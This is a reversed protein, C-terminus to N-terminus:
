LFKRRVQRAFAADPATKASLLVLKHLTVVKALACSRGVASYIADKTLVEGEPVAAQLEVFDACLDELSYLEEDALLQASHLAEMRAQLAALADDTIAPEKKRLATEERLKEMDAQAQALKAEQLLLAMPTFDCATLSATRLRGHEGDRAANELSKGYLRVTEHRLKEERELLLMLLQQERELLVQVLASDDAGHTQMPATLQMSPSFGPAPAPAAPASAAAVGPAPAPAPAVVRAPTRPAPSPAPIPDPVPSSARSSAQRPPVTGGGKGREGIERVVTTMQQAFGADTEVAPGYFPYWLHAGLLLGLWGTPRYGKEMLLPVM